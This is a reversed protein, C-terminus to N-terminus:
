KTGVISDKRKDEESLLEFGVLDYHMKALDNRSSKERSGSYVYGESRMYTNWRRHELVEIIDREKLTLDKESKDAGPIGCAIRAKLHIALAMSSRYNYEYKWFEEENGWKLHRELALKELQDGLIVERSYASEWDGIAEIEYQQDRYNTIGELAERQDTSYVITKIVPKCKVRECLMRIRAAQAINLVDDGLSIFVFTTKSLNSIHDAFVKTRVDIGSHIRIRYRGEGPLDTGNYKESMLEPCEAAFMEEALEDQDFAHINIRYGDMQSYWTLAKMMETGYKGLGAIIVNIEKMSGTEQYASTFLRTGEEYLFRYILSRIENVRRVKVEGRDARNLLLEGEPGSSFVYLGTNKRQNYKELIKLAHILNDGENEKMLFFVLEAKKGHKGFDPITIDKQFIIAKLEKSTDICSGSGEMEEEDVNTFVILSSKEREKMSKALVLSRESLDSFIFVKKGMNIKYFFEPLINKFLSVLFSFTLIPAIFFLCTMYASYAEHIGTTKGNIHDMIFDGGVNVTFVQITQLINFAFLKLLFASEEELRLAFVPILGIYVALFVGFFITHYPTLMGRRRNKKRGIGIYLLALVLVLISAIFCVNWMM